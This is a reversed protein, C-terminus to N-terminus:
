MGRKGLHKEVLADYTGDAKLMALGTNFADILAPGDGHSRSTILHLTHQNVRFPSIGLTRLPIRAQATLDDAQFTNTVVYDTDQAKLMQFCARMTAPQDRKISGDRVMEILEPPPTYGLPICLRQGTLDAPDTAPRTAGTIWFVRQAATFLPASYLMEAGRETTKQYPFTADVETAATAAYGSKWPMWRLAAPRGARAFAQTVVETLLGGGPLSEDTFPKFDNGTALTVVDQAALPAAPLCLVAILSLVLRSPM